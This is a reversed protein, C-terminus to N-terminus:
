ACSAQRCRGFTVRAQGSLDKATEIDEFGATGFLQAVATEQDYGHEVLLWGGPRLHRPAEGIIRRLADLGDQGSILATQPEFRVDGQALHPDDSRIYPPNSLILDFCEFPMAEYWDSQRFHVHKLRLRTANRRAVELAEASADCALIHCHPRESAIALAIAGTGTGLDAIAFTATPPIRELALEVLHETEPRPILTDPTVELNLSWFERHGLIHAIPEGDQRRQLVAKFQRAIDLPLDADPHAFLYARSVGLTHALLVEADLRPTDSCASLLRQSQMLADDVRWGSIDEPLPM